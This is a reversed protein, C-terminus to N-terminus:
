DRTQEEVRLTTKKPVRGRASKWKKLKASLIVALDGGHKNESNDSLGMKPRVAKSCKQLRGSEAFKVAV